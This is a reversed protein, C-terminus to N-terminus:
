PTAEEKPRHSTPATSAPLRTPATEAAPPAARPHRRQNILQEACTKHSPRDGADQLYAPQHCHICPRRRRSWHENGSWDLVTATTTMTTATATM